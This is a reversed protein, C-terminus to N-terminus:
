VGDQGLAPFNDSRILSEVDAFSRLADFPLKGEVACVQVVNYGEYGFLGIRLDEPLQMGVSPEAEQIYLM